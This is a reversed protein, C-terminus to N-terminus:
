KVLTRIRAAHDRKFHFYCHVRKQNKRIMIKDKPFHGEFGIELKVPEIKEFPIEIDDGTIKAGNRKLTEIAHKTGISYVDNLSMTTYKFDMGEVPYVPAKWYEPIHDYGLVTGLIGGASAPNCDSDQGCRTSIELTKGFDGER